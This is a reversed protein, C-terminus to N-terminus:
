RKEIKYIQFRFTTSYNLVNLSDGVLQWNMIRKKTNVHEIKYILIINNIEYLVLFKHTLKNTDIDGDYFDSLKTSSM